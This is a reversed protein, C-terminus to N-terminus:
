IRRHDLSDAPIWLQPTNFDVAYRQHTLVSKACSLAITQMKSTM